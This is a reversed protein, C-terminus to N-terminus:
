TKIRTGTIMASGHSWLVFVQRAYLHHTATAFPSIGVIEFQSAALLPSGQHSQRHLRRTLRARGRACSSTMDHAHADVTAELIPPGDVRILELEPTLVRLLQPLSCLRILAAHRRCESRQEGIQARIVSPRSRPHRFFESARAGMRTATPGLSVICSSLYWLFGRASRRAAAGM